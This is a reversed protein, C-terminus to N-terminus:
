KTVGNMENNADIRSFFALLDDGLVYARNGSYIVRLGARRMKRWGWGGIRLRERAEDARYLCGAQIVGSTAENKM